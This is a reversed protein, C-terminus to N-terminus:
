YYSDYLLYGINLGMNIGKNNKIRVSPMRVPWFSLSPSILFADGMLFLRVTRLGNEEM